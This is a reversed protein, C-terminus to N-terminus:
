EAPLKAELQKALEIAKELRELSEGYQREWSPMHAATVMPSQSFAPELAVLQVYVVLLEESLKREM